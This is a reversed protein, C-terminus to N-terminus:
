MGVRGFQGLGRYMGSVRREEMVSGGFARASDSVVTRVTNLSYRTCASRKPLFLMVTFAVLIILALILFKKMKIYLTFYSLQRDESMLKRFHIKGVHGM